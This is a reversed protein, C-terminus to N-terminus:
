GEEKQIGPHVDEGLKRFHKSISRLHNAAVGDGNVFMAVGEDLLMKASCAFANAQGLKYWRDNLADREKLQNESMSSTREVFRQKSNVYDEVESM